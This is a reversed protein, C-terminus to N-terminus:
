ARAERPLLMQLAKRRVAFRLPLTLQILEGDLAARLTRRRRASITVKSACFSELEDAQTTYGFVLRLALVLLGRRTHPKAVHFVLDGRALCDSGKLNYDELQRANNGVFLIHTRFRRTTNDTDVEIDLLRGPRMMAYLAAAFAVWRHRGFRAQQQERQRIANAYLGISANNLFVRENVTPIDVAVTHQMAILAAADEAKEPIGFNKAVYNFTGSPIVGLPVGGGCLAQAFTNITGDGGAAVVARAREATARHIHSALDNGDRASLIVPELQHPKFLAALDATLQAASGSGQNVIVVFKDALSQLITRM